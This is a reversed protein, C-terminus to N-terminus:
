RQSELVQRVLSQARRGDARGRIRPMLVSMVKGVDRVSLAGVEQVTQHILNMLDSESMASPAYASLVELEAKEKAVLDARGAKEYEGISEQRSKVQAAVVELVEGEELVRKKEIERNQVAALLFRLTSVRIAERKKTAELLDSTLKERLAM